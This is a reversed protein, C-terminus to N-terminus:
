AGPGTYIASAPPATIPVPQNWGTFDISGSGAAPATM